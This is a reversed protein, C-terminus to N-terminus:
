QALALVLFDGIHKSVKDSNDFWYESLTPELESSVVRQLWTEYDSIASTPCAQACAGCSVCDSNEFTTEM